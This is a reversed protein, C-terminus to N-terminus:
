RANVLYKCSTSATILNYQGGSKDPHNPRVRIRLNSFASNITAILLGLDYVYIILAYITVFIIPVRGWTIAPHVFAWSTSDSRPGLLGFLIAFVLSILFAVRAIWPNRFHKEKKVLISSLDSGSQFIGNSLLSQFTSSGVGQIWLFYGLFVPQVLLDNFWASPEKALGKSESSEFWAGFILALLLNVVINFIGLYIAVKLPTLRFRILFRSLFEDNNLTPIQNDM